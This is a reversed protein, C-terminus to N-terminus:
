RDENGPDLGEAPDPDLVRPESGDHRVSLVRELEGDDHGAGVNDAGAQALEAVGRGGRAILDSTRAVSGSDPVVLGALVRLLTSKGVGNPGVVGVRSRPGVTLDVADLVVATGRHLTVNRAVLSSSM